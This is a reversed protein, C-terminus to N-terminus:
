QYLEVDQEDDLCIEDLLQTDVVIAHELMVTWPETYAKPDDVTIEIRLTGFNPRTLKETVLASSTIPSGQIDLWMDDRIGITEVVLTDGEWHGTSYGNWTPNPDDPLPRGDLFIQRYAANFEHLMVIVDPTQVIKQYQPLTYARPYNPPMCYAHPDERGGNARRVAMQETSWETYPLGEPRNIGLNIQERAMRSETICGEQRCTDAVTIASFWIGSLDPRDDFTRPAPATLDPAGDATRPIGRTPYDLWQAQATNAFAWLM